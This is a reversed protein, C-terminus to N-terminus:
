PVYLKLGALAEGHRGFLRVLLVGQPLGPAPIVGDTRWPLIGVSRGLVDSITVREVGKPAGSFQLSGDEVHYAASLPESHGLETIGVDLAM